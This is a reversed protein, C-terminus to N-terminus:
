KRVIAVKSKVPEDFHVWIKTFGDATDWEIKKIPKHVVFQIKIEFDEDVDEDHTKGEVIVCSTAGSCPLVDVKIDDKKVGLTNLLVLLGGDQEVVTYGVREYFPRHFTYFPSTIFNDFPFM